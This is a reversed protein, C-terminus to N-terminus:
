DVPAEPEPPCHSRLWEAFVDRVLDPWVREVVRVRPPLEYGVGPIALLTCAGARYWRRPDFPVDQVRVDYTRAGPPADPRVRWTLGSAFIRGLVVGQGRLGVGWVERAHYRGDESEELLGRLDEGLIELLGPNVLSPISELLDRRTVPGAKLGTLMTGGNVLGIEARWREKLAQAVREALPSRGIMSHPLGEPLWALVQSLHRDAVRRAEDLIDLSERDSPGSPDVPWLRAHWDAVRWRVAPAGAPPEPAQPELELRAEGLYRGFSGAQLIPVGAAEEGEALAHHSHGGIIADLGLGSAALARDEELGLHSLALVLDCGDERLSRVAEHVAQHTNRWGIGLYPFINPFLATVGVIGVRLGGAQVAAAPPLGPLPQAGDPLSLNAALWPVQSASALTTLRSATQRITENNGPVFAQCGLSELLRVNARGGTGLTLPHSFDLHDGADLLLVPEGRAELERRRARALAALAPWADFRSHLDNTHLITLAKRQM